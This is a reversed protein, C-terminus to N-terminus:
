YVPTCWASRSSDDGQVVERLLKKLRTVVPGQEGDGVKYRDVTGVSQVEVATGCIFVEDAVYLETRDVDREVVPVQLEGTLLEKVVERTISELIGASVPPTIAVGDRIIYICAYGAEAVKGNPNLIIGYDYGNIRSETSVYRSNQYNTIAKVRPPLVNDSIRTWSSVNCHM